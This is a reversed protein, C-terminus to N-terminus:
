DGGDVVHPRVIGHCPVCNVQSQHYECDLEATHMENLATCTNVIGSDSLWEFLIVNMVTIKYKLTRHCQIM